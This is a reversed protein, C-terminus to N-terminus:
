PGLVSISYIRAGARPGPRHVRGEDRGWIRVEDDSPERVPRCNALVEVRLLQAVTPGTHVRVVRRTNGTEAHIERWPLGPDRRALLRFDSVCTNPRWLPPASAVRSLLNTDFRLVVDTFVVQRGFDMDVYPTGPEDPDSMWLNPWRDPWHRGNVLNAPGYPWQDPSVALSLSTTRQQIWHRYPPLDLQDVAYPGVPNTTAALGGDSAHLFQAVTGVPQETAAFWQVAAVLAREREGADHRPALAFRHVTGPDVFVDVPCRLPGDHRAPLTVEGEAVPKGDTRCWPGDARQLSWYLSVPVDRPNHLYAEIWDIRDTSVPFIQGRPMDLPQPCARDPAGFDLRAQSSATCVADAALDAPDRHEVDIIRVDADLIRQQVGHIHPGDPDAVHAPDLGHSLAYAAAIGVAQGLAGLTQQVRLAGIAVHTASICRGGMWLNRVNRSYCARLPVSFLPVRTWYRYNADGSSPEGPVSRALIGGKTHLDLYWGGTGIRDPWLTARHCDGETLVVDGLLRRSERKGPVAGIWELAYSAFRARDPHRNKIFDWVGIAYRQLEDRVAEAQEIQHYPHGIELWWFGGFEPRHINRLERGIEQETEFRVAWDPACYPVERGTDVCRICLTAGSTVDDAEVPALPEGHAARPERGYSSDAGALYGITGDGTCDAFQTATVRLRKETTLQLVDLSRIRRGALGSDDCLEAAHAAANLVVTLSSQARVANLLTLDWTSNTLGNEWFQAHNAARDALLLEDVIGTERAWALQNGAGAPVVRVESSSNGGLVPRNHVLLTEAGSRAAALAMCVGALGGGVVCLDAHLDEVRLVPTM